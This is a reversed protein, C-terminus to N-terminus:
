WMIQLAWHQIVVQPGKISITSVIEIPVTSCLVTVLGHAATRMAWHGLRGM